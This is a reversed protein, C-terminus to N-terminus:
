EDAQSRSKRNSWRGTVFVAVISVAGTCIIAAGQTPAHNDFAHWSVLTLVGLAVLGSANAATHLIFDMWKLRYNRQQELKRQQMLDDYIASDNTRLWALKEVDLPLASLATPKTPTM